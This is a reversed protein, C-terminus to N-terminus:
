RWACGRDPSWAFPGLAVSLLGYAKSFVFDVGVGHKVSVIIIVDGKAERRDGSSFAARAGSVRWTREGCWTGREERQRGRQGARLRAMGASCSEGCGSQRRKMTTRALVRRGARMQAVAERGGRM